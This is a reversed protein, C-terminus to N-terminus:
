CPVSGPICMSSNAAVFWSVYVQLIHVSVKFGINALQEGDSQIWHAFFSCMSGRDYGHTRCLHVLEDVYFMVTSVMSLWQMVLVPLSYKLLKNSSFCAVIHRPPRVGVKLAYATM